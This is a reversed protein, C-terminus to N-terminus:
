KQEKLGCETFALIALGQSFESDSKRTNKYVDMDDNVCTGDSGENMAGDAGICSELYGFAAEANKLYTEELIGSKVARCIGFTIGSTGTTESYSAPDNIITGFSGDARQYSILALLQARFRRELEARLPYTDDTLALVVAAAASFWGNGRGWLAGHQTRDDCYYGHYVLGTESDCLMDYHLVLQRLAENKYMRQGTMSGYRALFIGGMFVTDVWVQNPCTNAVCTHELAGRDCRPCESMLYVAFKECLPLYTKDGTHHYLALIGNAAATTNVSMGPEAEKLHRLVWDKIYALYQPHGTKDYAMEIAYLCVGQGWQWERMRPYDHDVIFECLKELNTMETEMGGGM